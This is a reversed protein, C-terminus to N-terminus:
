IIKGKAKAEKEKREGIGAGIALGIPLGIGVFAPNIVTFPAGFAIGLAIGTGIYREKLAGEPFM